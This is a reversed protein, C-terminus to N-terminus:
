IEKDKATVTVIVDQNSWEVDPSKSIITTPINTDINTITISVTTSAGLKDMVVFTYVGNSSVTYTALSSSVRSGDPLIIYNIGSSSSARATIKVTGNTANETSKTLTLTPVSGINTITISQTVLRGLSDETVFTYTGNSTISYTASDSFVKNGDPLQIYNIGVQSNANATIILNTTTNETSKALNLVPAEPINTIEVDVYAYGGANTYAYFRYMGNSTVTYDVSDSYAKDNTPLLIHSIGSEDIADVTIVVSPATDTTSLSYEIIPPITIDSIEVDTYTEVGDEYFAYFRYTGNLTATYTATNSDINEGDPTQIYSIPESHNSIVTINVGDGQEARSLSYDLKRSTDVPCNGSFKRGDKCIPIDIHTLDGNDAKIFFRHMGTRLTVYFCESLYVKTKAPNYIYRIGSPHKATMTITASGVTAYSVKYSIEFDGNTRSGRTVITSTGDKVNSMELNSEGDINKGVANITYTNGVVTAISMFIITSKIKKM